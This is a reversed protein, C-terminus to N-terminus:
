ESIIIGDAIINLGKLMDIENWIETRYTVGIKELIVAHEIDSLIENCSPDYLPDDIVVAEIGFAKLCDVIQNVAKENHKKIGCGIIGIRSVGNKQASIKIRTTILKISEDYDFTRKGINRLKYIAKGYEKGTIKGILYIGYLSDIDDNEDLRNSLIYVLFYLGCMLMAGVFLGFIVYKVSSRVSLSSPSTKDVNESSESDDESGDVLSDYYDKQADKLSAETDLILKTRAQVEQSYKLQLDRIEADSGQTINFDIKTLEHAYGVLVLNRSKENIYSDVAAAIKEATKKENSAISIGITSSTIAYDSSEYSVKVTEAIDSYDISTDDSLYSYFESDTLYYIYAQKVGEMNESNEVSISYLLEAKILNQSDLSMVLSSRRVENAQRLEQLYYYVSDVYSKESDSLSSIVDETTPANSVNRMNRLMKLGSLTIAGILMAVVISKWHKLVYFFLGKISIEVEKM